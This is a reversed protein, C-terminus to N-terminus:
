LDGAELLGKLNGLDAEIEASRHRSLVSAAIRAIGTPRGRVLVELETGGRTSFFRVESEFVFPGCTCLLVYRHQPEFEQFEIDLRTRTGVLNVWQRFRTGVNTGGPTLRESRLVAAQWKPDNELDSVIAFVEEPPRRIQVSFEFRM